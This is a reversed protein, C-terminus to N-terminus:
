PPTAIGFQGYLTLPLRNTNEIKKLNNRYTHAISGDFGFLTRTYPGPISFPTLVFWCVYKVTSQVPAPFPIHQYNKNLSTTTVRNAAGYYSFFNFFISCWPKKKKQNKSVNM